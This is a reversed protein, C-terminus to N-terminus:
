AKPISDFYTCTMLGLGDDANSRRARSPWESLDQGLDFLQQSQEDRQKSYEKAITSNELANQEAQKLDQAGPLLKLNEAAM